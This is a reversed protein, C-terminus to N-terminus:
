ISLWPLGAREAALALGPCAFDAVVARPRVREIVQAFRQAYALPQATFLEAAVATELPGSFWPLLALGLASLPPRLAECLFGRSEIHRRVAPPGWAVFIPELGLTPLREAIALLPNVHGMGPQSALLVRSM